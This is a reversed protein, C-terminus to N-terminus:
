AEPNERSGERAARASAVDDVITAILQMSTILSGYIPWNERPLEQHDSLQVALADLRRQVPEVDADPDAISRGADRVTATWRRRFQEDWAGEVYSAERLTRALHLLHLIGEDVRLLIEEYGVESDAGHGRRGGRGRGRRGLPTPLRRRPNARGSERALRVTEWVADLEQRMATAERSWEEARDTEWSVSFSEAMDELVAGMRRNIHDVYAAAQKDRLPPVVLLNIAAGVGVGLAVEVLRSLLLAQQAEFGSGLVFIATTAIAVGEMRIGPLRSGLMGLLLALAFTWLHVGLFSGVLFSVLVGLASAVLTQAGRSLSRFVTAHVTLLATWPALFPQASELVSIALWWAISAAVVAKAIQVLDTEVEPRRLAAAARSGLSM